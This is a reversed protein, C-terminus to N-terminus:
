SGAAKRPAAVISRFEPTGRLVEFEPHRAIIERCYGSDAAKKLWTLAEAKRGALVEVVAADSMLNPDSRDLALAKKLEDSAEGTHGTRALGTALFSRAAVDNPNLELQARALQVSRSYAENAKKSNGLSRYSDGLNGLIQYDNPTERAARELTAAAEAAHGTWLQTMGLNSVASAFTPDIALAKTYAELAAPYNCLMTETGGLNSFARASDPAARTARRFM